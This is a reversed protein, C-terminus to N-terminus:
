LFLSRHVMWYLWVRGTACSRCLCCSSRLLVRPERPPWRNEMHGFRAGHNSCSLPRRSLIPLAADRSLSTRTWSTSGAAAAAARGARLGIRTCGCASSAGPATAALKPAPRWRHAPTSRTAWAPRPPQWCRRWPSSSKPAQPGPPPHKCCPWRRTQTQKRAVLSRSPPHPSLAVPLDCVFWVRKSIVMKSWESGIRM